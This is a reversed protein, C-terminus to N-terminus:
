SPVQLPTHVIHPAWFLFLPIAPNHEEVVQARSLTSISTDEKFVLYLIPLQTFTALTNVHVQLVHQQFLSDEYGGWWHDGKPGPKCQAPVAGPGQMGTCTNNLGKAPGEASM